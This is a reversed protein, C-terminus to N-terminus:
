FFFGCNCLYYIKPKQPRYFYFFPIVLCIPCRYISPIDSKTNYIIEINPDIQNFNTCKKPSSEILASIDKLPYEIEEYTENGM